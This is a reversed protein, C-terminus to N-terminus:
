KAVEAQEVVPVRPEFVMTAVPGTWTLRLWSGENKDDLNFPYVLRAVRMGDPLKIFAECTDTLVRGRGWFDVLMGGGDARDIRWYKIDRGAVKLGVTDMFRGRLFYDSERNRVDIFKRLLTKYQADSFRKLNLDFPKGQGFTHCLHDIANSSGTCLFNPYTYHFQEPLSEGASWNQHEGHSQNVEYFQAYRENMGETWVFFDPDKSRYTEHIRRLLEDEGPLWAKSPVTHGHSEDFCFQAPICANTDIQCGHAHYEDVMAAFCAVMKDQFLKSSPCARRAPTPGWNGTWPGGDETRIIAQDGGEFRYFDSEVDIASGHTYLDVHGGMAKITDMAAALEEKTGCYTSIDYDPFYKDLGGRDWSFVHLTNLGYDQVWQKYVNPLDNYTYSVNQQGGKMSIQVWGHFSETMWKPLGPAPFKPEMHDRYLDAAAHWDGELLSISCQPSEWNGGNDLFPYWDFSMRLKGNATRVTHDYIEDGDHYAALYYSRAANFCVMYQMAIDAPYRRSHWGSLRNGITIKPDHILDGVTTSFLFKDYRTLPASDLIPFRACRIPFYSDSTLSMQTLVEKDVSKYTITVRIDGGWEDPPNSFVVVRTDGSNSEEVSRFDTSSLRRVDRARTDAGTYLEFFPAEGPAELKGGPLDFAPPAAMSAIGIQSMFFSFMVLRCLQLM